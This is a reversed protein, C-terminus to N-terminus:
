DQFARNGQHKKGQVQQGCDANAPVRRPNRRALRIGEEGAAKCQGYGAKLHAWTTQGSFFLGVCGAPRESLHLSLPEFNNKKWRR